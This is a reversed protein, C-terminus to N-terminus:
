SKIIDQISKNIPDLTDSYKRAWSIWHDIKKIEKKSLHMESKRRELENLFKKLTSYKEFKDLAKNIYKDTTIAGINDMAIVSAEAGTESLVERAHNSAEQNLGELVIGGNKMINKAEELRDPGM